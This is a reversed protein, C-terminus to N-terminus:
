KRKQLRLQIENTELLVSSWVNLKCNGKPELLRYSLLIKVIFAKMELMAYQEGICSRPGASFPIYSYNDRKEMKDSTFRQPDFIEPNPFVTPDRHLAYVSILINKGPPLLVGAINTPETLKRGIIPIPPLLRLAEKIVMEIFNLEQLKSYTLVTSPNDGFIKVIEEYVKQQIRSHRSLYYLTASTGNTTTEHGIYIFTDIEERNDEVSPPKIEPSKTKLILDLLAIKKKLEIDDDKPRISRSSDLALKFKRSTINDSTIEHLRKIIKSQKQAM